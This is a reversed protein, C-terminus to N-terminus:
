LDRRAFRCGRGRLPKPLNQSCKFGNVYRSNDTACEQISAGNSCGLQFPLSLPPLMLGRLPLGLPLLVATWSLLLLSHSKVRVRWGQPLLSVSLWPRVAPNVLAGSSRVSAETRQFPLTM